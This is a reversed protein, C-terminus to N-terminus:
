QKATIVNITTQTTRDQGTFSVIMTVSNRKATISSSLGGESTTSTVQWNTNTFYDMYESLLQQPAIDDVLIVRQSVSGDLVNTKMTSTTVRPRVGFIYQKPFGEPINKLSEESLRPLITSFEPKDNIVPTPEVARHKWWWVGGAALAVVVIASGIGILVRRKHQNPDPAVYYTETTEM